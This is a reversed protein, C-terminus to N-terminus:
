LSPFEELWDMIETQFRATYDVGPANLEDFRLALDELFSEIEERPLHRRRLIAQNIAKVYEEGRGRGRTLDHVHQELAIGNHYSDM